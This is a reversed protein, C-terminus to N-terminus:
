YLNFRYYKGTRKLFDKTFTRRLYERYADLSMEKQIFTDLEDGIVFWEGKVRYDKFVAHLEHENSVDGDIQHILDLTRPNSAELDKWRKDLNTTFGIKVYPTDREKLFYIIGKDNMEIMKVM